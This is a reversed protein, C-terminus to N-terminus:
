DARWLYFWWNLGDFSFANIYGKKGLSYDMVEIRCVQAQGSDAKKREVEKIFELKLIPSNSDAKPHSVYMEKNKYFTGEKLAQEHKKKAIKLLEEYTKNYYTYNPHEQYFAWDERTKEEINPEVESKRIYDVAEQFTNGAKFWSGPLKMFQWMHIVVGDLDRNKLARQLSNWSAQPSSYDYQKMVEEETKAFAQGFVSFVLFTLLCFFIKTKKM